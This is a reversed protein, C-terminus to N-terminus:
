FGLELGIQIERPESFHDPRVFWGLDHPLDAELDVDAKGTNGFVNVQNRRDLLNFVNLFVTPKLLGLEFRKFAKLDVTYSNPRRRSNQLLTNSLNQGQRAATQIQPTYPLGSGYRGLLNVGWKQRGFNLFVNLTHRQDWDLSSLERTPENGNSLSTFEANPDSNTGEAVQFTYNVDFSFIGSPRKKVALTVGRVNAYDKNIYRIYSIGAISTPIAIGTTVWDRVDRYFGTVDIGIDEFIQQQLGLEYMVTKQPELDANGFVGQNADVANVKFGPKNYLHQFSPIQLFHGYSFHIVGQDTIPYAIGFRPSFRYKPDVDKYWNQRRQELTLVGNEPKFPTFINPDEPDALVTGKSDFYDLRLGVNIIVTRYEIKDQLYASFDLPRQNYVDHNLGSADPIILRGTQQGTVPNTEPQLNVEDLFLKHQRAELGLKVQHVTTVQSTLDWKGQWTTTNRKFRHLNTGGYRFQNGGRALNPDAPDVYRVDRPNEFVYEEFGSFFRSVNLTYFTKASLTHTWLFSLDYGRDFKNVNGDPNWRYEHSYDSFDAKSGIAGLNVKIAPSLRYALKIQGTMKERDNMPVAAGNGLAQSPDQIEGRFFRLAGDATYFRQGYLWGDTKFYRGTAFFTLKNGIFPVPGSLSGQFNYNDLGIDDINNFVPLTRDPEQGLLLNIIPPTGNTDALTNNRSIYDGAWVNLNGTYKDGGEKTVINVIGSMANGYEANFTGSIVQLEQISENEVELSLAGDYVDSVPRGDIWFAIESARGGRIHTAGGADVTIGAQLNLIEGFEQAPLSEIQEAAVYAAASTLDKQVISREAVVVVEEGTELVTESLQIDVQSTLDISVRINEVRANQYGILSAKVSYVGPTVNLIVYYGELNTVAGLTTGEILVNVGPLGERARADRVTGAIKGTTGGMAPKFSVQLFLIAAFASAISL